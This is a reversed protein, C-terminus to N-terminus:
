TNQKKVGVEKEWRARREGRRRRERRGREGERHGISSEASESADSGTGALSFGTSSSTTPWTMSVPRSGGVHRVGGVDFLIYESGSALVTRHSPQRRKDLKM